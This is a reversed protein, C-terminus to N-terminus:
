GPRVTVEGQPWAQVRGTADQVLLAGQADVGQATGTALAQREDMIHEATVSRWVHVPRGKLADLRDYRAQFAAFRDQEFRQLAQVLTPVVWGMAQGPHVDAGLSQLDCREHAWHAPVGALNLGLGIVLWSPADPTTAHVVEILVGGLKRGAVWLDNPWKLQVPLTPMAQTLAECVAVGVALSLASAGPKSWDIRMPYGVSLTLSQGPLAQWARGHRGRGATQSWAVAVTPLLDDGARLADKGQKMLYTNTSDVEPLVEISLRPCWQQASLWLQEAAGHLQALSAPTAPTVAM